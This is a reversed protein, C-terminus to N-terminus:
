EPTRMFSSLGLFVWVPPSCRNCVKYGESM